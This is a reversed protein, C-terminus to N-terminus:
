TLSRSTSREQSLRLLYQLVTRVGFGSAGRPHCAYGDSLVTSSFDIHAWPIQGVFERLFLGGIITGAHGEGINKLDAIRSDIDPRYEEALPLEWLKEDVEAGAQICARILSPSNGLIAAYRNGLAGRVAATLTAFDLMLDPQKSAAYALADALVLRGEADTNLVEITKGNFARVVDGPRIATGSPMNEAAPIYARVELAPQLHPLAHMVGLVVAAGAMDRKQMQMSDATKLSLGGSDFTIGKGILAIRRRATTPPRYIIELFYPENGSGQAVGLLAGMKLQAIARRNRAIVRVGRGALSRAERALRSPPLAAAPTNALDRAYCTAAARVDAQRIAQRLSSSRAPVALVLNLPVQREPHSRFRTFRYRALTVGEHVTTVTDASPDAILSVVARTARLRDACRAVFDAIRYWANRNATPGCGCLVVADVPLTGHPQLWLDEGSRGHFRYRKMAAVLRGGLAHDVQKLDAGSYGPGFVPLILVDAALRSITGTAVTATM